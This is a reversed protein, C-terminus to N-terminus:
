KDAEQDEAQLIIKMARKFEEYHGWEGHLGVVYVVEKLAELLKPAAEFLRAAEPLARFASTEGGVTYEVQFKGDWKVTVTKM